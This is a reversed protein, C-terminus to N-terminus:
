APDDCHDVSQEANRQREEVQGVDAVEHGVRESQEVLADAAVDEATLLAVAVTLLRPEM